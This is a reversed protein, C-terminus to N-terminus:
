SNPLQANIHILRGWQDRFVSRLYYDYRFIEPDDPYFKDEFNTLMQKAVKLHDFTKCSRIVKVIKDSYTKRKIMADELTSHVTILTQIKGLAM